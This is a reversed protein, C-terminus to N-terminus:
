TIDTTPFIKRNNTLLHTQSWKQPKDVLFDLINSKEDMAIRLFGICGSMEIYYKESIFYDVFINIKDDKDIAFELHPLGMGEVAKSINAELFNDTGFITIVTEKGIKEFYREFYKYINIEKHFNDLIANKAMKNIEQYNSTINFCGIIVNELPLNEPSLNNPKKYNGYFMEKFYEVESDALFMLGESVEKSEIGHIEVLDTIRLEDDMEVRLTIDHYIIDIDYDVCITIKNETMKFCLHPHDINKIVQTIDFKDINDTGFKELLDKKELKSFCHNLYHYLKTRKFSSNMIINKAKRSIESYRNKM